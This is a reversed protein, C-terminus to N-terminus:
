EVYLPQNIEHGADMYDFWESETIYRAKGDEKIIYWKQTRANDLFLIGISDPEPRM